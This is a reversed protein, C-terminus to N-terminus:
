LTIIVGNQPQQTETGVNFLVFYRVPEVMNLLESCWSDPRDSSYLVHLWLLSDASQVQWSILHTLQDSMNDTWVQWNILGTLQDCWDSMKIEVESPQTDSPWVASGAWCMKDYVMGVTDLEPLCEHKWDVLFVSSSCSSSSLLLLNCNVVDSGTHGEATCWSCTLYLRSTILQFFM